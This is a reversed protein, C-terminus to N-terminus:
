NKTDSSKKILKIHIEYDREPDPNIKEIIGRGLFIWKNKDLKKFLKFKNQKSLSESTVTLDNAYQISKPLMFIINDETVINKGNETILMSHVLKGMHYIARITNHTQNVEKWTLFEHTTM